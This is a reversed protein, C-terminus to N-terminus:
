EGYYIDFGFCMNKDRGERDQFSVNEKFLWRFNEKPLVIGVCYRTLNGIGFQVYKANPNLLRFILPFAIIFILVGLTIFFIIKKFM